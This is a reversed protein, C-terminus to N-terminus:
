EIVLSMGAELHAGNVSEGAQIAKKIDTKSVTFTVKEKKYKGDIKTEDDIIVSPPKKRLKILLEPSSISTIENAQMNYLLYERLKNMKVQQRNARDALKKSAEKVAKAEAEGNAIFAAVAKSKEQLDGKLGELTDQITTEDLELEQLESLASQYQQTIEYLRM